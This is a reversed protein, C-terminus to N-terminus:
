KKVISSTISRYKYQPEQYPNFKNHIEIVDINNRLYDNQEPTCYISHLSEMLYFLTTNHRHEKIDLHNRYLPYGNDALSTHLDELFYVGGSKLLPFLYGLTIQQDYMHHSGDDLIVDFSYGNKVCENAFNELENKNSQDLKYTYVKNNNLFSKDDIDLGIIISNPCYENWSRISCGSDIGIELIILEDNRKERLFRDYFNAYSHKVGNKTGKDSGNKNLVDELTLNEM